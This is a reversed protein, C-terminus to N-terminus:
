RYALRKVCHLSHSKLIVILMVVVSICRYLSFLPWYPLCFNAFFANPFYIYEMHVCTEMGTAGFMLLFYYINLCENREYDPFICGLSYETESRPAPDKKMLQYKRLRAQDASSVDIYNVKMSGSINNGHECFDGNSV